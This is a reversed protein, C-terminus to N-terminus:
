FRRRGPSYGSGSIGTGFRTPGRVYNGMRYAATAQWFSAGYPTQLFWANAPSSPYDTSVSVSGESASSVRGVLGAPNNGNAGYTLQTLHATLMNLLASQAIVTSVPGTGDNRLYLTAIGFMAELAEASPDTAFAGYALRFAAVDFTAVAGGSRPVYLSAATM